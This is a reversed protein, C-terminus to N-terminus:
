LVAVSHVPLPAVQERGGLGALEIVVAAATVQAGGQALVLPVTTCCAFLITVSSVQAPAPVTCMTSDVILTMAGAVSVM